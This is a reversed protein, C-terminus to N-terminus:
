NSSLVGQNKVDQQCQNIAADPKSTGTLISSNMTKLLTQVTDTADSVPAELKMDFKSWADKSEQDTAMGDAAFFDKTVKDNIYAPTTTLKALVDAGGEGVAWEVFKKAAAAKQGTSKASVMLGTPSGFTVPTSPIKKSPNQPVPAMGWDFKQADGTKQQSLFSAAYWTGMPMMAAKQTGFQAQYQVKNTFSTNYNITLKDDQWKLARQYYPKMYGFDGKLYTKEAPQGNQALAFSQVLSQWNHQYMPYVSNADYGAAPLKKKLEEGAKTYDNWTWTADPTKVGAKKFMDKNYFLVWHDARYPLAYYKGDKTKYMSDDFGKHDAYKKAIDSVDALGGSKAYTDYKVTNKLPFVDPQAGASIDATLQKDYDDASYEKLKITVNPYEAEFGDVLKQFEPTMKLSWGGMTIETKANKDFANADSAGSKQAGGGGGCGALLMALASVAALAGVPRSVKM